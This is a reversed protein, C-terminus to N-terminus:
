GEPQSHPYDEHNSAKPNCEARVVELFMGLIQMQMESRAAPPISILSIISALAMLNVTLRRIFSITSSKEVLLKQLSVM